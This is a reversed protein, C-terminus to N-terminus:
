RTEVGVQGGMMFLLYERFVNNDWTLLFNFQAELLLALEYLGDVQSVWAVVFM